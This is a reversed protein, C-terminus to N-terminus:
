LDTMDRPMLVYGDQEEYGLLTGDISDYFELRGDEREKTVWSRIAYLGVRYIFLDEKEKSYKKKRM